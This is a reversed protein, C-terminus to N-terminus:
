ARDRRFPCAAGRRRGSRAGSCPAAYRSPRLVVADAAHIVAPAVVARALARSIGASCRGAARVTASRRSDPARTRRGSRRRGRRRAPAPTRAAACLRARPAPVSADDACAPRPSCSTGAPRSSARRSARSSRARRPCSDLRKPSSIVCRSGRASRRPFRRRCGASRSASPRVVDADAVPRERVVVVDDRGPRAFAIRPGIDAGPLDRDVVGMRHTEGEVRDVASAIGASIAFLQNAHIVVRSPDDRTTWAPSRNAPMSAPVLRQDGGLIVDRHASLAGDDVARLLVQERRVGPDRKRCREARARHSGGPCGVLCQRRKRFHRDARSLPRRWALGGFASSASPPASVMVNPLSPCSMFTASAM